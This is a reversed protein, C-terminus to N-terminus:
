DVHKLQVQMAHKAREHEHGNRPLSHMDSAKPNLNLTLSVMFLIVLVLVAGKTGAYCSIILDLVNCPHSM